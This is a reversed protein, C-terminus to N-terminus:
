GGIIEPHNKQQMGTTGAKSGSQGQTPPAEGLMHAMEEM